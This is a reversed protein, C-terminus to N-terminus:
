FWSTFSIYNATPTITSSTTSNIITTTNSLSASSYISTSISTSIPTATTFAITSTPWLLDGLNDPVFQFALRISYQRTLTKFYITIGAIVDTLTQNWNSDFKIFRCVRCTGQSLKSSCHICPMQPPPWPWRCQWCTKGDLEQWCAWGIRIKKKIQFLCNWACQVSWSSTSKLTSLKCFADSPFTVLSLHPRRVVFTLLQRSLFAGFYAANLIYSPLTSGSSPLM